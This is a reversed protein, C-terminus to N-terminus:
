CCVKSSMLFYKDEGGTIFIDHNPSNQHLHHLALFV